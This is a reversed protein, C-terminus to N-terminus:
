QFDLGLLKQNDTVNLREQWRFYLIVIGSSNVKVNSIQIDNHHLGGGGGGGLPEIVV